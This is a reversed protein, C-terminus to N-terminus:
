SYPRIGIGHRRGGPLPPDGVEGIRGHGQSRIVDQRRIGLIGGEEDDMVIIGVKVEGLVFAHDSVGHGEDGRRTRKGAVAVHRAVVASAAAATRHPRRRRVVKQQEEKAEARYDENPREPPTVGFLKLTDERAPFINTM